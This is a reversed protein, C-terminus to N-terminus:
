KGSGGGGGGGDGGSDRPSDSSKLEDGFTGKKVAAASVNLLKTDTNCAQYYGTLKSADTAVWCTKGSQGIPKANAPVAASAALVATLAILLNKM